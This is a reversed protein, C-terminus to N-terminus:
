SAGGERERRALEASAVSLVRQIEQALERQLEEDMAAFDDADLGTMQRLLEQAVKEPETSPHFDFKDGVNAAYMQMDELLQDRNIM